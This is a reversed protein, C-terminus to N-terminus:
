AKFIISQHIGTVRAIQRQTAGEINKMQRLVEDRRLKDMAQLEALSQGSLITQIEKYISEDSKKKFKIEIDLFKNERDEQKM